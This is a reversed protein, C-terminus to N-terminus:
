AGNLQKGSPNSSSSHELRERIWPSLYVNEVNLGSLAEIIINVQDWEPIREDLIILPKGNFRCFGSRIQFETNSLNRYQIEILLKAAIIKLDELQAKVDM